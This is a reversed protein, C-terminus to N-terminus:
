VLAAREPPVLDEGREWVDHESDYVRAGNELAEIWWGVMEGFSRAAVTGPIDVHHYDVDLIPVPADFAVAIDCAVMGARGIALWTEDWSLYGPPDGEADDRCEKTHCISQSTSDFKFSPGILERAM